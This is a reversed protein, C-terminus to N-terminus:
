KLFRYTAKLLFINQSQESFLDDRLSPFLGKEPDGFQTAGQSWVLFLESGPIYEWRLVLNSRFQMFNFDPNGFTYDLEGDGDEDISYEDDDADFTIQEAGYEEYRDYIYDAMPDTIHKFTHYRGRSVYPQGYYQVTLNPLITYNIRISVNFTERELNSVIYRTGDGFGEQDVYQVLREYDNFNPWISFNFANSPQVTIGVFGNNSRVTNNGKEFGRGINGGFTFYVSKRQDTSINMWSGFGQSKRLAPGGRLEKTSIDKFERGFGASARWFNKFTANWNPGVYLYTNLGGFDWAARHNYNVWMDRFVSFPKSWRYGAWFFHHIEDASRLFGVDNLELGPSRWALGGEFFYNTGGGSKGIKFTGGHGTLSTRTTDFDLHDADPRQFNHEFATQTNEIAAESGNVRSFVGTGSVYYSHDNWWHLFDVGGSYASRHLYDLPTDDLSRHTTTGVAGIVTNGQNFDQQLRGVFYNSFPEVIEESRKDNLDIEAYEKQTVSELIGISLGSKTKGSFKAAGLITTNEPQTSFAGDELDPSGHPAGGIRRSYFINDSTFPGGARASSVQYNFVNNNEVFFPRQEQFFVRYGDLTLVSPDAEVQGFDPNITFDLTLDSTVGIKGDVGVSYRTDSGDAFPNGEEKEFTEAQALFYPQVEIQKQPRIDKLGRLEGFHSVWGAINRPKFNWISRSENRFDRRTFQMGWVMEDSKGYRLQSFPIRVEATWGLSDITTKAYWIPNWSSDWRNGDDSVAEDGKVGSVSITFSFATRLDHYSDINMEVWDGEFGDRRSKRAVIKDPETDYCRYAIYLDNDSYLIKFATEQTPAEGEYPMYQTFDGGWDVQQWCAEDFLGDVIPLEGQIKQTSYSKQEPVDQGSLILPLLFLFSALQILKKMM